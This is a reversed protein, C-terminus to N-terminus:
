AMRRDEGIALQYRPEALGREYLLGLVPAGHSDEVAAAVVARREGIGFLPHSRESLGSGAGRENDLVLSGCSESGLSATLLAEVPDV